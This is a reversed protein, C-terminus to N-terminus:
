NVTATLLLGTLEMGEASTGSGQFRLQLQHGAQASVFPVPFTNLTWPSPPNPNVVVTPSTPGFIAHNATMDFLTITQASEAAAVPTGQRFGAWLTLTGGQYSDDGTLAPLTFTATLLDNSVNANIEIAGPLLVAPNGFDASMGRSAAGSSDYLEFALPNDQDHWVISGTTPLATTFSEEILTLPSPSVVATPTGTQVPSQIPTVSIVPSGSTPAGVPGPSDFASRGCAAGALCVGLVM